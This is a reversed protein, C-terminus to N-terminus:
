RSARATAQTDETVTITRFVESLDGTNVQIDMLPWNKRCALTHIEAALPRGDQPQVLATCTNDDEPKVSLHALAPLSKLEPEVQDAPLGFKVRVANFQSSRRRLDEPTSDAVVRGRSIIITRNCVAEVEELIHTSLLIIKERGMNRIMDRVVQKQNPDLGETPEDLLLVPPDHLIAQAFCTRQRYGRSLTDITQHRVPELFCLELVEEIRQKKSKGRYGRVQAIFDLFELVTMEGYLPTNEPMYGIVRQARVPDAVANIGLVSISGADPTLFGAIMRMTTTKGAGNPGLVGLVTGKQASFSVGAVAIRPGFSKKLERVELSDSM